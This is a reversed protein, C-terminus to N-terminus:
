RLLIASTSLVHVAFADRGSGPEEMLLFLRRKWDQKIGRAVLYNDEGEANLGLLGGFDPMEVTQTPGHGVGNGQIAEESLFLAHHNM